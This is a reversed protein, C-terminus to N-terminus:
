FSPTPEQRLAMTCWYKLPVCSHGNIRARADVPLSPELQYLSHGTPIPELMGVPGLNASTIIHSNVHPPWWWIHPWSLCPRRGALPIRLHSWVRSCMELGHELWIELCWPPWLQLGLVLHPPVHSSWTNTACFSSTVWRYESDSGSPTLLLVTSHSKFLHCVELPVANNTLLLVEPPNGSFRPLLLCIPFRSHITASWAFM